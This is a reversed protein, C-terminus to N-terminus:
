HRARSILDHQQRHREGIQAAAFNTGSDHDTTLRLVTIQKDHWDRRLERVRVQQELVPLGGAQVNRATDLRLQGGDRFIEHEFGHPAQGRSILRREISTKAPPQRQLTIANWQHTGSIQATGVEAEDRRRSHRACLLGAWSKKAARGVEGDLDDGRCVAREAEDFFQAVIELAAGAERPDDAGGLTVDDNVAGEFGVAAQTHGVGEVAFVHEGAKAEREGLQEGFKRERSIQNAYDRDRFVNKSLGSRGTRTADAETRM